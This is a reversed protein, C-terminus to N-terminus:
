FHETESWGWTEAERITTDSLLELGEEAAMIDEPVKNGVIDRERAKFTLMIGNLSRCRSLQVCMRVLM